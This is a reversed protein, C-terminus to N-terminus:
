SFTCLTVGRTDPCSTQTFFFLLLIVVMGFGWWLLFHFWETLEFHFASSVGSCHFFGFVLVSRLSTSYRMALRLSPQHQIDIVVVTPPPMALHPKTENVAVPLIQKRVLQRFHRSAPHPQLSVPQVQAFWFAPLTIRKVNNMIFWSHHNYRHLVASTLLSYPFMCNPNQDSSRRNNKLFLFLKELRLIMIKWVHIVKLTVPMRVNGRVRVICWLDANALRKWWLPVGGRYTHFDREAFGQEIPWWM